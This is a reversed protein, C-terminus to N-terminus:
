LENKTCQKFNKINNIVKNYEKVYSDAIADWSYKNKVILSSNESIKKLNMKEAKRVVEVIEEPSNTKLLFGNKSDKIVDGIDGVKTSIPIVGCAMEELLTLPLGEFTSPFVCFIAKNFIKPLEEHSKYGIFKCNKRKKCMEKISKELPGLGGVLLKYDKLGDMALVLKDINKQETLRGISVITKSRKTNFVKFKDIDVGNPIIVCDKHFQLYYKKTKKGTCVITATNKINYKEIWEYIKSVRLVASSNRDSWLKRFGLLYPGQLTALFRRKMLSCPLSTTILSQTNIIDPNIRKIKFMAAIVFSFEFILRYLLKFPVLISNTNEFIKHKIGVNYIHVKKNYRLIGQKGSPKGSIIHVEHGKEVLKNSLETLIYIGGGVVYPFPM